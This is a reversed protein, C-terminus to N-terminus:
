PPKFEPLIGCEIEGDLTGTEIGTILYGVFPPYGEFKEQQLRCSKRGM